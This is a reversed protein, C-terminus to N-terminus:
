AGGENLEKSQMRRLCRNIWWWTFAGWFVGVFPFLVFSVAVGQANWEDVAAFMVANCILAMLLGYGLMGRKVIFHWKGKAVEQALLHTIM